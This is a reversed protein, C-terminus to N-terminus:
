KFVKKKVPIYMSKVPVAFDNECIVHDQVNYKYQNNDNDLVYLTDESTDYVITNISDIKDQYEKGFLYPFELKFLKSETFSDYDLLKERLIADGLEYVKDYNIEARIVSKDDM